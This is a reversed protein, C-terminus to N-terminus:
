GSFKFDSIRGEKIDEFSRLLSKLFKNQEKLEKKIDQIEKNM